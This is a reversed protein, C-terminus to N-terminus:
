RWIGDPGFILTRPRVVSTVQFIVGLQRYFNICVSTVSGDGWNVIQNHKQGDELSKSGRTQERSRRHISRCGRGVNVRSYGRGRVVGNVNITEPEKVCMRRLRDVHDVAFAIMVHRFGYGLQVIKQAIMAGALHVVKIRPKEVQEAIQSRFQSAWFRLDVHDAPIARGPAIGEKAATRAAYGSVAQVHLRLGDVNANGSDARFLQSRGGQGQIAAADAVISARLEDM